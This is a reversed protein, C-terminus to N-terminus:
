KEVLKEQCIDYLRQAEKKSDLKVDMFIEFALIGQYILMSIGNMTELGHERGCRLFNTEWPNYILDCLLASTDDLFSLDEFDSEIGNMGLATCNIIIDSESATRRMEDNDWEKACAYELSSCLEEAKELTRNFITISGVGQTGAGIAISGAAGGAGLIMIKSGKLTIGRDAFATFLGRVDTNYGYTVGDRIKVTNISRYSAAEDDINDVIDLLAGKHPMTANFGAFGLNKASEVFQALNEPKVHFPFYAANLGNAAIIDNHMLPSLSHAIPDGIVAMIKTNIDINMGNMKIIGKQYILRKFRKRNVDAFETEGLQTRVSQRETSRGCVGDGWAADAFETEGLQM